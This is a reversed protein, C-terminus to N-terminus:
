SPTCGFRSIIHMNSSDSPHLNVVKGRMPTEIDDEYSQSADRGCSESTQSQDSKWMNGVHDPQNAYPVCGRIKTDQELEQLGSMQDHMVHNSEMGRMSVSHKCGCKGAPCKCKPYGCKRQMNTGQKHQYKKPSNHVSCTIIIFIVLFILVAIGTM